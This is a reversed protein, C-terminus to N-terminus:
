DTSDEQSLLKKWGMPIRRDEEQHKSMNKRRQYYWDALVVGITALKATSLTVEINSGLQRGLM